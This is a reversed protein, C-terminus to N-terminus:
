GTVGGCRRPQLVHECRSNVANAVTVAVAREALAHDLERDHERDDEHEQHDRDVETAHVEAPDVELVHGADRGVEGRVVGVSKAVFSAAVIVCYRLWTRLSAVALLQWSSSVAPLGVVSAGSGVNEPKPMPSVAVTSNSQSNEIMVGTMLFM